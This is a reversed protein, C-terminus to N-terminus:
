PAVSDIRFPTSARGDARLAVFRCAVKQGSAFAYPADQVDPSAPPVVAGEIVDMFRYPGVFFDRTPSIPRSAYCVLAGGVEGAWDDTNTFAISIEDTAPVLTIVPLTLTPLAYVIPGDNVVDMGAQLRAANGRVYHNLGTLFVTDGLKNKWSVNAAYVNWASRQDATLVDLWATSLTRVINRM